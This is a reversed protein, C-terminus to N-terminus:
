CCGTDCDDSEAASSDPGCDFIGYHKGPETVNFYHALRTKSLMDATNRCVPEWKGAEFLHHDDLRFTSPSSPLNGRYQAVQGYDECRRDLDLKFGRWVVRYFRAQEDRLRESGPLESMSVTRVDRFGAAEMMDRADNVYPALGICEAVLQEDGALHPNRRDSVIDSIYFEGGPKLVRYMNDFVAQKEPSLNIVCNSIVLDVSEDAIGKTTEIFGNQFELSEPAYNLRRMFAPAHERAVALQEDTMDVGIMRGRPGLYKRLIFADLGAGCGLDVATLGMLTPLDDPIPSGCGYYRESVAGPILALVPTHQQMTDTTCCASESLDATKQLRRGYYDQLAEQLDAM